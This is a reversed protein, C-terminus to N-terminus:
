MVSSSNGATVSGATKNDHGFFGGEM